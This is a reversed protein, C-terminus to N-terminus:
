AEARWVKYLNVAYARGCAKRRVEEESAGSIQVRENTGTETGEGYWREAPAPAYVGRSVKAKALMDRNRFLNSTVPATM